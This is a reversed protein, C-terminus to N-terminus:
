RILNWGFHLAAGMLIYTVTATLVRQLIGWVLTSWSPTMRALIAKEFAAMAEEKNPKESM